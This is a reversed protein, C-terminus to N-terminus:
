PIKTILNKKKTEEYRHYTKQQTSNQATKTTSLDEMTTTFQALPTIIEHSTNHYIHNIIM